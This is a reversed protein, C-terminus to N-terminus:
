RDFGADRWVGIAFQKRGLELHAFRHHETQAEEFFADGCRREFDAMADREDVSKALLNGLESTESQEIPVTVSQAQGLAAGEEGVVDAGTEELRGADRIMAFEGGTGQLKTM